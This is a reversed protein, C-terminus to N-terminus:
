SQGPEGVATDKPFHIVKPFILKKKLYVFIDKLLSFYYIKAGFYDKIKMKGWSRSTGEYVM